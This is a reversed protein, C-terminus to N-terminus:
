TLQEQSQLLEGEVRLATLGINEVSVLSCELPTDLDTGKMRTIYVRDGLEISTGWPLRITVIDNVAQHGPDPEQVKPRSNIEVGCPVEQGPIYAAPRIEGQPEEYENVEFTPVAIKCRDIMTAEVDKRLRALERPEFYSM